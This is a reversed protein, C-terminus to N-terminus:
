CHIGRKCLWGMEEKEEKEVVPVATNTTLPNGLLLLLIPFIISVPFFISQWQSTDPAQKKKTKGKSPRTEASETANAKQSGQQVAEHSANAMAKHSGQQVAEHSANAMAKQSGQQVAEHSANAMAKQSGQQVAEHSVNAMAVHAAKLASAMAMAHSMMSRSQVSFNLVQEQMQRLVVPNSRNQSKNHQEDSVVSTQLLSRNHSKNHQEDSVMSIQVLTAQNSSTKSPPAFGLQLMAMEGHSHRGSADDQGDLLSPSGDNGPLHEALAAASCVFLYVLQFSVVM